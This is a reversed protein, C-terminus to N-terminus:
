KVLPYHASVLAARAADREKACRRLESAADERVVGFISLQGQALLLLRRFDAVQANFASAAASAMVGAGRHPRASDEVEVLRTIRAVVHAFEDAGMRAREPRPPAEIVAVASKRVRHM